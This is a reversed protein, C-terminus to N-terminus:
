IINLSIMEAFEEYNTGLEEKLDRILSLRGQVYEIIDKSFSYYLQANQLSTTYIGVSEIIKRNYASSIMDELDKIRVPNYSNRDFGLITAKQKIFNSYIPMICINNDYKKYIDKISNCFVILTDKNLKFDIDDNFVFVIEANEKEVIDNFKAMIGVFMEFEYSNKNGIVSIKM